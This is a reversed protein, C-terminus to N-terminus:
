KCVNDILQAVDETFHQGTNCRDHLKLIEEAMYNLPLFGGGGGVVAVSFGGFVSCFQLGLNFSYLKAFKLNSLHCKKSM